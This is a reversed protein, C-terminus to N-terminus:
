SNHFNIGAKEEPLRAYTFTGECLLKGNQDKVLVDYVMLQRGAKLEKGTAYLCSVGIGASLFHFDSNVTCIAEGRSVAASGGAMDAITYLVGGHVTNYPNMHGPEIPMVVEAFGPEMKTVKMGMQNAFPNHTNLKEIVKEYNMVESDM